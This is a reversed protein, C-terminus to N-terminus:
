LLFSLSQSAMWPGVALSLSIWSQLQPMQREPQGVKTASPEQGSGQLNIGLTLVM